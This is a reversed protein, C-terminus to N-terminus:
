PTRRVAGIILAWIWGGIAFGFGFIIAYFLFILVTVLAINPPM